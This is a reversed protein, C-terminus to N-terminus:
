WTPTQEELDDETYKFSSIYKKNIKEQILSISWVTGCSSKESPLIGLPILYILPESVLCAAYYEITHM